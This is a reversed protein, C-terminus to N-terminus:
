TLKVKTAATSTGPVLATGVVMSPSTAAVTVPPDVGPTGPKWVSTSTHTHANFVAVAANFATVLANHATELSSFRTDSYDSRAAFSAGPDAGVHVLAGSPVMAVDGNAKLKVRSGTADYVQTEGETLGTPRLSRDSTCVAIPHDTNGSVALMVTEADRAPVATLGLPQFHEVNDRTQGELTDVQMEQLKTADNVLNVVGRQVMLRTRRHIPAIMSRVFTELGRLNM